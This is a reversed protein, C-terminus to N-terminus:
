ASALDRDLADRIVQSRTKHTAAAKQDLRDLRDPDLRFQIVVGSQDGLERPRGKKKPRSRLFEVDYGYEAENAAAEFQEAESPTFRTQDM